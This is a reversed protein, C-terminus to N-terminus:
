KFISKLKQNITQTQLHHKLDRLIQHDVDSHLHKHLESLPLLKVAQSEWGMDAPNGGIRRGVYFRTRTTSRDYDGLHHTPQAQIGSEEWMEKVATHKMSPSNAEHGGKPFTNIYGGFQNTPSVLWVRHDPEVVIMGAAHRLGPHKEYTHDDSEGLDNGEFPDKVSSIATGNIHAPTQCGPTFTSVGDATDPSHIVVERGNEDKHPHITIM